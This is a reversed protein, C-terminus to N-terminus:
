LSLDWREISAWNAEHKQFRRLGVKIRKRVSENLRREKENVNRLKSNLSVERWTQTKFDGRWKSVKRGKDCSEFSKCSGKRKNVSIL